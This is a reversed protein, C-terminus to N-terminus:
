TGSNPQENGNTVINDGLNFVVRATNSDQRLGDDSPSYGILGNRFDTDLGRNLDLLTYGAIYGDRFIPYTSYGVTTDPKLTGGDAHLQDVTVSFLSCQPTAKGQKDFGTFGLPSVNWQAISNSYGDAGQSRNGINYRCPNVTRVTGEYGPYGQRQNTDHNTVLLTPVACHVGVSLRVGKPNCTVSTGVVTAEPLITGSINESVTLNDVTFPVGKYTIGGLFGHNQVATNVQGSILLTATQATEGAIPSNSNNAPNTTRLFTEWGDLTVSSTSAASSIQSVRVKAVRSRHNLNQFRLHLPALYQNDTSLGGFSSISYNFGTFGTSPTGVMQSTDFGIQGIALNNFIRTNLGLIQLATSYYRAYGIPGTYNRITGSPADEQVGYGWGFDDTVLIDIDGASAGSPAWSWTGASGGSCGGFLCCVGLQRLWAEKVGGTYFPAAAANWKGGFIVTDGSYPLRSAPIYDYQSYQALQGSSPVRERWNEVFHWHYPSFAQDGSVSTAGNWISTWVERGSGNFDPTYGSNPGKYGTYGGVWQFVAM